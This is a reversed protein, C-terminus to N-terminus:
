FLITLCDLRTVYVQNISVHVDDPARSGLQFIRYRIWQCTGTSRRLFDHESLLAQGEASGHSMRSRFPRARLAPVQYGSPLCRRRAPVLLGPFNQFARQRIQFTFKRPSASRTSAWTKFLWQQYFTLGVSLVFYLLIVSTTLVIGWWFPLQKQRTNKFDTAHQVFFDPTDAEQSAIQYKVNSKPM